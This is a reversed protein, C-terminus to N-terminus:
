KPRNRVSCYRDSRTHHVLVCVHPLHISPNLGDHSTLQHMHRVCTPQFSAYGIWPRLTLATRSAGHTRTTPVAAHLAPYGLNSKCGPNVPLLQDDNLMEGPFKTDPPIAPQKQLRPKSSTNPPDPRSRPRRDIIPTFQSPFCRQNFPIIVGILQKKYVWTASCGPGGLPDASSLLCGEQQCHLSDTM